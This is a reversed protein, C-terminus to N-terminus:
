IHKVISNTCLNFQTCGMQNSELTYGYQWPTQDITRIFGIDEDTKEDCNGLVTTHIPRGGFEYRPHMFTSRRLAEGEGDELPVYQVLCSFM